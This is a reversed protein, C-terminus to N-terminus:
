MASRYNSGRLVESGEGSEGSSGGSKGEGGSCATANANTAPTEGSTPSHDVTVSPKKAAANPPRAPMQEDADPAHETTM